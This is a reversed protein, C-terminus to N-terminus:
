NNHILTKRLRLKPISAFNSLRGSNNIVRSNHLTILPFNNNKLITMIEPLQSIAFINEPLNDKVKRSTVWFFKTKKNQKAVHTILSLDDDIYLDLHLNKIIENKFLHPQKNEFNFYMTNFIKDLQYKRILNKTQSEQFKFRGSILYLKNNQKSIRRLFELNNKIPPRLFSMHTANRFVQEPYKPIRYLLVGNDKKKYLKDIFASTVFPPYDIFIKDLDFGINMNEKKDNRAVSFLAAIKISIAEDSM